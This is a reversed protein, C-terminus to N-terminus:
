HLTRPLCTDTIGLLCAKEYCYNKYRKQTGATRRGLAAKILEVCELLRQNTCRSQKDRPVDSAIGTFLGFTAACPPEKPLILDFPSIGTARHTQNNYSLTLPQIYTEWSRPKESVYNRIRAVTTRTSREVYM